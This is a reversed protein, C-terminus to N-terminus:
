RRDSEDLPIPPGFAAAYLETWEGTPDFIRGGVEVWAHSEMSEGKLGVGFHLEAHVGQRRLFWCLVMSRTLCSCFFFSHQAAAEVLRTMVEAQAMQRADTDCPHTPRLRTVRALMKWASRYGSLRIALATPPLLFFALLVTRREPGPLRWFRALDKM